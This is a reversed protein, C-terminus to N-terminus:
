ELVEVTVEARPNQADVHFYFHMERAQRDNEYIASRVVRRNKAKKTGVYTSQMADLLVSPDLDPQENLYYLHITVRVRVLFPDPLNPIQLAASHFYALAEKSKVSALKGSRGTVIRRRNAKSYAQGLVTFTVRVPHGDITELAAGPNM